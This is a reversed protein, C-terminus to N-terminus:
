GLLVLVIATVSAAVAFASCALSVKVLLMV